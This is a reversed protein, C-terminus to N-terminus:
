RILYNHVAIDGNEFREDDMKKYNSFDNLWSGVEDLLHKAFNNPMTCSFLFRSTNIIRGNCIIERFADITWRNESVEILCIEINRGLSEGFVINWEYRYPGTTEPEIISPFKQKLLNYM